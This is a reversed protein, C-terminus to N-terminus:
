SIIQLTGAKSVSFIEVFSTLKIHRLDDLFAKPLTVKGIWVSKQVMHLQLRRLVSRLWDRKRRQSEPIDFVVILLQKSPYSGYSEADPFSNISRKRLMALRQNGRPTISFRKVGKIFRKEILGDRQLFYVMRYFRSRLAREPAVLAQRRERAFAIKRQERELRGRSAGYGVTLFAELFDAMGMATDALRELLEM